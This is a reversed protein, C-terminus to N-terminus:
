GAMQLAGEHSHELSERVTDEISALYSDVNWGIKRGGARLEIGWGLSSDRVFELTAEGLVRQIEAREEGSLEAATMVQVPGSGTMERLLSVDSSRLREVFARVASKQLDACALDALANRVIAAIQTVTRQRAEQAFVTKERDVEDLWKKELAQVAERTERTLRTRLEDAESQSRALLAARNREQELQQSQLVGAATEAQRRKEEVEALRGAIRSERGDIAKVLRGFFFHKMLVVLVLFNVLQAAVTFWDILM